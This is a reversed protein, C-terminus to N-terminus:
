RGVDRAREELGALGGCKLRFWRWSDSRRIPMRPLRLQNCGRRRLVGGGFRVVREYYKAAINESETCYRGFPWAFSNVAKGVRQEIEYRSTELEYVKQERPLDPFSEHTVGHSGIEVLGTDALDRLMAWTCPSPPQVPKEVPAVRYRQPASIFGTPVFLTAPLRLEALTPMVVTYFDLYADDFTLVVVPGALKGQVDDELRGNLADDLAVVNNKEALVEMQRRFVEPAIDFDGEYRGAVMHYGLIVVQPSWLRATVSLPLSLAKIIDGAQQRM